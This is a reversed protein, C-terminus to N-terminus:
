ANIIKRQKANHRDLGVVKRFEGRVGLDMILVMMIDDDSQPLDLNTETMKTEYYLNVRRRLGIESVDHEVEV